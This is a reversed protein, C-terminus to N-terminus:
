NTTDMFFEVLARVIHHGGNSAVMAESTDYLAALGCSEWLLKTEVDRAICMKYLDRLGDCGSGHCRTRGVTIGRRVRESIHHVPAFFLTREDWEPLRGLSTSPTVDDEVPEHERRTNRSRSGSGRQRAM